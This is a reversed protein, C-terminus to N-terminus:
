FAKFKKKKQPVSTKTPLSAKGGLRFKTGSNSGQLGGYPLLFSRIGGPKGGCLFHPMHTQM